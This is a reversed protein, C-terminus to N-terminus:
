FAKSSSETNLNRRVGVHDFSEGTTQVKIGRGRRLKNKLMLLFKPLVIMQRKYLFQQETQHQPLNTQVLVHVRSFSQLNWYYFDIVSIGGYFMFCKCDFFDKLLLGASNIAKETLLM